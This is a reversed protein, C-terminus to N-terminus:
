AHQRRQQTGENYRMKENEYKNRRNDTPRPYGLKTLYNSLDDPLTAPLVVGLVTGEIPPFNIM